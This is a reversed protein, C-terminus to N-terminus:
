LMYYFNYTTVQGVFIEPPISLSYLFDSDSHLCYNKDSVAVQITCVVVHKPFKDSLLPYYSAKGDDGHAHRGDDHEDDGDRDNDGDDRGYHDSLFDLNILYYYLRCYM